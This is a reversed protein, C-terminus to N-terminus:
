ATPQQAAYVGGKYGSLEQTKCGAARTDQKPTALRLTFHFNQPISIDQQVQDSRQGLALLVAIHACHEIGFACFLRLPTLHKAQPSKSTPQPQHPIQACLLTLDWATLLTHMSHQM